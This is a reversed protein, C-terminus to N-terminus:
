PVEVIRVPAPTLPVVVACGEGGPAATDGSSHIALVIEDTIRVEVGTCDVLGPRPGILVVRENRFDPRLNALDAEGSTSATLSSWEGPDDVIRFGGAPALESRLEASHTTRFLARTSVAAVSRKARRELPAPAPLTAPAPAAASGEAELRPESAERDRTDPRAPAPVPAPPPPSAAPAQAPAPAFREKAEEGKEPAPEVQQRRPEAAVEDAVREASDQRGLTPVHPRLAPDQRLIAPVFIAVVLLAAAALGVTEWSVWAKLGRVAGHRREFRERARAYFGTPLEAPLGRLDDGLTRYAGLAAALDEDAALRQEFREREEASMRGDLYDHLQQQDDRSM